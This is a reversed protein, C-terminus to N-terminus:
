YTRKNEQKLAICKRKSLKFDRLRPSGLAGGGGAVAAEASVESASPLCALIIMQLVCHQPDPDAPDEHKQAM